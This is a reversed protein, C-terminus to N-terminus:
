LVLQSQYVKERHMWEGTNQLGWHRWHKSGRSNGPPSTTGRPRTRGRHLHLKAPIQKPLLASRRLARTWGLGTRVPAVRRQDGWRIEPEARDRGPPPTPHVEQSAFLDPAPSLLQSQQREGMVCVSSETWNLQIRSLFSNMFSNVLLKRDKNLRLGWFTQFVSPKQNTWLSSHHRHRDM